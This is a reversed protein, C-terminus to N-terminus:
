IALESSPSSGPLSAGSGQSQLAEPYMRVSRPGAKWILISLSSFPAAWSSPISGSLGAAAPPRDGADPTGLLWLLVSTKKEHSDTHVLPSPTLPRQGCMWAPTAGSVAWGEELGGQTPVESDLRGPCKYVGGVLLLPGPCRPDLHHRSPSCSVRMWTLASPLLLLAFGGDLLVCAIVGTHEAIGHSSSQWWLGLGGRGWGWKERSPGSGRLRGRVDGHFCQGRQRMSVGTAGMLRHVSRKRLGPGARVARGEAGPSGRYATPLLM